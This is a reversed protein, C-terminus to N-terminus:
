TESSAKLFRVRSVVFADAQERVVPYGAYLARANEASFAIENGDTDLVNKWGITCAALMDLTDSEIEDFNVEAFKTSDNTRSFRKQVQKRTFSRYVDSDPGLLTIAVPQGNRALLPMATDFRQVIMDVGADSLSKTDIAALDFKM